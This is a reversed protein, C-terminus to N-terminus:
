DNIVEYDGLEDMAAQVAEIATRGKAFQWPYSGGDFRWFHKGNMQPSSVRMRKLLFDLVDQPAYRFADPDKSM